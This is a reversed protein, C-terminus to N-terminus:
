FTGPDVTPGSDARRSAAAHISLILAFLKLVQAPCM